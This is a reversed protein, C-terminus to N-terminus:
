NRKYDDLFKISLVHDLINYIKKFESIKNLAEVKGKVNELNLNYSDISTDPTMGKTADLTAYIEEHCLVKKRSVSIIKVDEIRLILAMPWQVGVFYGWETKRGRKHLARGHPEYPAPCGFVRILMMGTDPVRSTTKEYPSINGKSRQPLTKHIVAAYVDALGWFSEDLHPAGAMLSRSMEAIARVVSEAYEMEQPTRSSIPVIRVKFTDVYLYSGAPM